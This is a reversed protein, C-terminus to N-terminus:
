DINVNHETLLRYFEETIKALADSSDTFDNHYKRWSRLQQSFDWLMSKAASAQIATDFEVQEEPLTFTLTAKM